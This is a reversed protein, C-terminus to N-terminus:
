FHCLLSKKKGGVSASGFLCIFDKCTPTKQSLIDGLSVFIRQFSTNCTSKLPSKTRLTWNEWANMTVWKYSLKVLVPNLLKSSLCTVWNEYNLVKIIRSKRCGDSIHHFASGWVLETSQCQKGKDEGQNREDTGTCPCASLVAAVWAAWWM